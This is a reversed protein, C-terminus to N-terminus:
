VMKPINFVISNFETVNNAVGDDDYQPELLDYVYYIMEQISYFKLEKNRYNLKVIEKGNEKLIIIDQEILQGIKFINSPKNNETELHIPYDLNPDRELLWVNNKKVLGFGMLIFSGSFMYVGNEIKLYDKYMKPIKMPLTKELYEMEGTKMKPYLIHLFKGAIRKQPYKSKIKDTFNCIRKSGNSTIEFDLPKGHLKLLNM